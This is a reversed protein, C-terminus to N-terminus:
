PSAAPALRASSDPLDDIRGIRSYGNTTAFSKFFLVVTNAVRTANIM